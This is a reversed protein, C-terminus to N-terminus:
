PGPPPYQSLLRAALSPRVDRCTNLVPDWCILGNASGLGNSLSRVEDAVM